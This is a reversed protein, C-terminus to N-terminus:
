FSYYSSKKVVEREVGMKELRRKIETSVIGVDDLLDSRLVSYFLVQEQM